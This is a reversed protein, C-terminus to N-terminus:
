TEELGSTLRANRLLLRTAASRDLPVYFAAGEYERRVVGLLRREFREIEVFYDIGADTLAQEVRKAEELRGAIYVRVCEQGEFDDSALLAM